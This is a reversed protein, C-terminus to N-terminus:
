YVKFEYRTDKQNLTIDTGSVKFGKATIVLGSVANFSADSGLKLPQKMGEHFKVEGKSSIIEVYKPRKKIQKEVIVESDEGKGIYFGHISIDGGSSM